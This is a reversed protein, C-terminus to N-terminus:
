IVTDPELGFLVRGVTEFGGSGLAWHATAVHADRLLRQLPHGRYVATAGAAQYCLEVAEIAAKGAHTTALRAQTCQAMTLDDGRTITQWLDDYVDHLFCRASVTLALARAATAQATQREGLPQSTRHPVKTTALAILEDCARQSIGLPVAALLPAFVTFSTGTKNVFSSGTAAALYTALPGSWWPRVDALSLIRWAPVLVDQARFDHSGTGQMGAADWTNLVEVESVPLFAFRLDPAGSATTQIQDDDDVLVTGAMVWDSHQIGSAFPWQGHVRYSGNPLKGARGNPRVSNCCIEDGRAFVESAGEQPLMTAMVNTGLGINACWGVSADARSLAEIVRLAVTPSAEIGGLVRPMLLRFVGWDRLQELIDTPIARLEEIELAREALAPAGLEVTRQVHEADAIASM